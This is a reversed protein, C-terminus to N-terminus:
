KLAAILKFPIEKSLAFDHGQLTMDFLCSQSFSRLACYQHGFFCLSIGDLLVVSFVICQLLACFISFLLVMCCSVLIRFLYKGSKNFIETYKYKRIKSDLSPLVKRSLCKMYVITLNKSTVTVPVSTTQYINM